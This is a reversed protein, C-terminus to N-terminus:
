TKYLSFTLDSDLRGSEMLSSIWLGVKRIDCGDNIRILYCYMDEGTSIKLDEKHISCLRGKKFTSFNFCPQRNCMECTKAAVNVMGDEKHEVCFRRKTEELARFRKM